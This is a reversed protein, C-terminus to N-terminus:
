RVGKWRSLATRKRRRTPEDATPGNMRRGSEGGRDVATRPRSTRAYVVWGLALGVLAAGISSGLAGGVRAVIIAAAACAAGATWFMLLTAKRGFRAAVVDYSHGRDGSALRARSVLRRGVTFALEFAFLGLATGAVLVGRWGDTMALELALVALVTGVFYAGGNGLFVRAPPRNWVVFGALAGCLAAGLVPVWGAGLASGAAALAFAAIAGLGGALGDQGDILNVANTTAIVLFVAAPAALAGLPEIRFGGWVLIVGCAAQGAVRVWPPLQRADDVVGVALALLMAGWISAAREVSPDVIFAAAATAAAVALGGTTPVPESHIKLEDGSPRDIWGISRGLWAALPSLVISLGLGIILSFPM